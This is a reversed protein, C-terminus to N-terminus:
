FCPIIIQDDDYKDDVKNPSTRPTDNGKCPCLSKKKWTVLIFLKQDYSTVWLTENLQLTTTIIFM